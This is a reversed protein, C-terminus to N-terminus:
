AACSVLYSALRFTSNVTRMPHCFECPTFSDRRGLFVAQTKLMQYQNAGDNVGLAARVASEELASIRCDFLVIFIHRLV